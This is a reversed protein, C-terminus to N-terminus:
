VFLLLPHPFLLWEVVLLFRRPSIVYVSGRLDVIFRLISACFHSYIVERHQGHKRPGKRQTKKKKGPPKVGSPPGLCVADAGRPETRADTNSSCDTRRGATQESQQLERGRAGTPTKFYERSILSKLFPPQFFIEFTNGKVSIEKQLCFFFGM